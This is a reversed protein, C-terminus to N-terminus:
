RTEEMASKIEIPTASTGIFPYGDFDGSKILGITIRLGGADVNGHAETTFNSM